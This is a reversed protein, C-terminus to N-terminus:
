WEGLTSAGSAGALNVSVNCALIMAGPWRDCFEAPTAGDAAVLMGDAFERLLKPRDAGRENIAETHADYQIREPINIAVTVPKAAGALKFQRAVARPHSALAAAISEPLADDAVEVVDCTLGMKKAADQALSVAIGPWRNRAATFQRPEPWLLCDRVLEDNDGEDRKGLCFVGIIKSFAPSPKGDYARLAGTPNVLLFSLNQRQGRDGTVPIRVPAPFRHAHEALLRAREDPSPAQWM